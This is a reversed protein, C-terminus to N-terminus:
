LEVVADLTAEKLEDENTSAYLIDDYFSWSQIKSSEQIHKGIAEIVTQFVAPAMNWGFGM